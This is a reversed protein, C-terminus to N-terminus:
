GMIAYGKIGKVAAWRWRSLSQHTSLCKIHLEDLFLFIKETISSLPVM